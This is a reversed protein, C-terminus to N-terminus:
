PSEEPPVLPGEYGISAWTAPHDYFLLSNFRRLGGAVQRRLLSDSSSWRNFHALADDFTLHSFTTLTGEFVVPGYELLLLAQGAEKQALTPEDALYGDFARALDIRPPEVRLEPFCAAALHKMTRYGHPSLAKLGEVPPASGRLAVLGGGGLALAGGSALAAKIVGRRSVIGFPRDM